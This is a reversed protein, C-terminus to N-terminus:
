QFPPLQCLGRHPGEGGAAELESYGPDDLLEGVEGPCDAPIGSDALM